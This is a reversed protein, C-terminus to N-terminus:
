LAMEIATNNVLYLIYSRTLLRSGTWYARIGDYKESILWGTPDRSTDWHEALM